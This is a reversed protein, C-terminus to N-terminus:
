VARNPTLRSSEHDMSRSLERQLPSSRYDVIGLRSSTRGAHTRDDLLSPLLHALVFVALTHFGVPM